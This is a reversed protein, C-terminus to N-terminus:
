EQRIYGYLSKLRYRKPRGEIEEILNLRKLESIRAGASHISIGLISSIEKITKPGDELISLVKKQLPSLVDQRIPQISLVDLIDNINVRDLKKEKKLILVKEMLELMKRPNGHSTEWIQYLVNPEVFDLITPHVRKKFFEIVHERSIGNLYIRRDGLRHLVSNPFVEPNIAAFVFSKIKNSDYANKIYFIVEDPAKDAEDLLIITNNKFERGLLRDFFSLKKKIEKKFDKLSFLFDGSIYYVNYNETSLTRYLYLLASTKGVGYDGQIIAPNSNKIYDLLQSLEKDYGILIHSPKISLEVM